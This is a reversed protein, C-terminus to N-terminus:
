STQISTLSLHLLLSGRSLCIALQSQMQLVPLSLYRYLSFSLAFLRASPRGVVDLQLAQPERCYADTRYLQPRKGQEGNKGFLTERLEPLM